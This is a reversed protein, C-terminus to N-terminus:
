RKVALWARFPGWAWFCDVDAFGAARLLRENWSATLPVLVGELSLRKREVDDPSYGQSTKLRHYNAQLVDDIAGSEGIVKEVLVFAGGEVTRKAAQSVLHPRYNIPVFMLTLVSLTVSVPFTHRPYGDRLDHEIILPGDLGFRSRAADLMPKSIEVGVYEVSSPGGAAVLSLAEGRSCGLDVVSTGPQVFATAVDTVLSRMGAYDPISRELMDDFVRSVEDDFAWSRPAYGTDAADKKEHVERREAADDEPDNGPIMHASVGPPLNSRDRM